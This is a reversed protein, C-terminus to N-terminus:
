KTEELEKRILLELIPEVPRADWENITVLEINVEM